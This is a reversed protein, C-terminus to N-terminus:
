GDLDGAQRGSNLKALVADEDDQDVSSAVKDPDPLDQAPGQPSQTPKNQGGTQAQKARGLIASQPIVGKSNLYDFESGTQGDHLNLWLAFSDGTSEQDYMTKLIIDRKFQEVKDAVTSYDLPDRLQLAEESEKDPSEASADKSKNKKGKAIRSQIQSNSDAVKRNYSDFHPQELLLGLAPAKPVNLRTPGFTEPILSPPTGTRACLIILAVMKRIQHLMFSQGHFKLSIWEQDNVMFPETLTLNKMVRQCSRDSFDKGVTFNWFNHSGAFAQFLQRVRELLEPSIRYAKRLAQDVKFSSVGSNSSGEKAGTEASPQRDPGEAQEGDRLLDKNSQSEWWSKEGEQRQIRKGMATEPRPELFCYTPLSYNYMRSDCMLRAHFGGQVRIIKWVRITDPLFSNIYDKLTMGEPKAPPDLILKLNLVNIAASVGADTRAARMLSVKTVDDSNDDSIAGAKVCADFVESEITKVGPNIQSGSYGLGSYGILMAVKKKPIKPGADERSEVDDGAQTQGRSDGADSRKSEDWDRQRGRNSKKDGRRGGRGGRGSGGRHDGNNRENKSKLLSATPSSPAVDVTESVPSSPQGPDAELRVRKISAGEAKDAHSEQAQHQQSQQEHGFPDIGSEDEAGRKLGSM